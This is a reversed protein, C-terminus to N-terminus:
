AIITSTKILMRYPGKEDENSGVWPQYFRASEWGYNITAWVRSGTDSRLVTIIVRRCDCQQDDCYSEFFAYEGDPLGRLGRVHATRTEREAMKSFRSHFSVMAM